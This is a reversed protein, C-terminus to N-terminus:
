LNAALEQVLSYFRAPTEFQFLFGAQLGSLFLM